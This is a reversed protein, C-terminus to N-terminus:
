ASGGALADHENAAWVVEVSSAWDGGEIRIPTGPQFTLECGPCEGPYKAIM